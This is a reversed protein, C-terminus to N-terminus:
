MVAEETYEADVTKGKQCSYCLSKGGHEVSYKYVKENIKVKCKSCILDKPMEISKEHVVKSEPKPAVEHEGLEELAVIDINLADRLCRSKARTNAMEVFHNKVMPGCNEQTASGVGVFEKEGIKCAVMCWACKKEWDVSLKMIRMDDLGQKHAEDLLGGYTIFKRGKINVIHKNDM